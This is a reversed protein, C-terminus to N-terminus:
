EEEDKQKRKRSKLFSQIAKGGMAISGLSRGVGTVIREIEQIKHRTDGVM